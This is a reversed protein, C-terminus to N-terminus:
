ACVGMKIYSVGLRVSRQIRRTYGIAKDKEDVLQSVLM